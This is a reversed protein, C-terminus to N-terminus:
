KCQFLFFTLNIRAFIAPEAFPLKEARTLRSGQYLLKSSFRSFNYSLYFERTDNQPVCFQTKM